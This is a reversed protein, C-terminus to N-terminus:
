GRPLTIATRSWKIATRAPPFRSAAFNYWMHAQAYDQPVGEGNHYAVGLNYQATAHGQEAAKRWWGVAKAYNQPVGLGEVYMVGLNYQADAVGQKALPRWERIATAYDGRQYAALGEDVGARAPATLGLTFGALLAAILALGALKAKPTTM